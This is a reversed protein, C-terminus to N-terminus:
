RLLTEMFDTTMPGVIIDQSVGREDLVYTTPYARVKYLDLVAGDEDLAIPFSIGSKDVFKKAAAGSKELSTLNVSLLVIDDSGYKKYFRQMHPMEAKCPPCWSAWFNVIVKRGRYESLSVANGQLDRLTFDPALQNLHLGTTLSAAQGPEAVSESPRIASDYLSYAIAGMVLLLVPLQRIATRSSQSVSSVWFAAALCFAQMSSLSFLITLRHETPFALWALSGLFIASSAIPYRQRQRTLAYAAYVAAWALTLAPYLPPDIRIVLLAAQYFITGGAIYVALASALQELPWHRRNLQYVIYVVVATGALLQGMAGGDLFLLSSWNGSTIGFDLLLPSLKWVALWLLFAPGAAETLGASRDLGQRASWFRLASYGILGFGIYLLLQGNLVLSGIQFSYM